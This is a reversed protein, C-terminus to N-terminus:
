VGTTESTENLKQTASISHALFLIFAINAAHAMSLAQVGMQMSYGFNFMPLLLVISVVVFIAAFYGLIRMAMGGSAMLFQLASRPASLTIVNQATRIKMWWGFIVVVTTLVAATLLGIYYSTTGLQDSAPLLLLLFWLSGYFLYSPMARRTLYLSVDNLEKSKAEETKLDNVRLFSWCYRGVRQGIPKSQL